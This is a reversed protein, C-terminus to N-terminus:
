RGRLSELLPRLKYKRRHREILEDLCARWDDERGMVEHALAAKELWQAALTYHGARNADMISNAQHMALRIVWEPHSAHAASALHMLTEDHAGHGFRDGVARVAEDILGESLYIRIRDYAHLARALHALLDKRIAHWNAGAWTQVARFAELSLSHEFAVRAAKLAVATGGIGGAYDRLWCALPVVSSGEMENEDDGALGLGADAIKLADDHAAAERLAKALVLAEDPRKFSKVAYAIAEPTRELKVLMSAYSTHARAARALNLYEETRGCAELVRLRVATLHDELWDNASTLPWSRGKGAIVTALAPDDWGTQLARIAVHFGEDIGYEELRGQWEELTEALADREDAALESMLAAEAMLRGLDAFLEYMHEDTDYSHDLWDDVFAEGIPELIRLANTGDGVELFPVAKEVLRQLEEIDGSSRYGDWYRGRRNRAALLVRAQERVPAPDVPTRRRSADARHLAHAPIATALEAEIWTVLGPDSETRKELLEILRAQDLEALLEAIPKREIVPTKEDAFKLLVAVIHKCYGGWDYPCTCHADAVGDGHLRISVQYPEFESGEVEATLRDGRRLLDSVSGDSAYSRGRAFSEANALARIMEKSIRQKAVKNTNRTANMDIVIKL